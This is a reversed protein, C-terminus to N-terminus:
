QGRLGRLVHAIKDAETWHAQMVPIGDHDLLVVSARDPWHSVHQDICARCASGSCRDETRWRFKPQDHHRCELEHRAFDVCTPEHEHHLQISM